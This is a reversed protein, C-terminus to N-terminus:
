TKVTLIEKHFKIVPRNLNFMDVKISEHNLKMLFDKCDFSQIAFHSLRGQLREISIEHLSGFGINELFAKINVRCDHIGKFLSVHVIRSRISPYHTDLLKHKMQAESPGNGKGRKNVKKVSTEENVLCDDIHEHKKRLGKRIPTVYKGKDSSDMAIPKAKPDPQPQTHSKGLKSRTTSLGVNAEAIYIKIYM